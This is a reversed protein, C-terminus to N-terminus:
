RSVEAGFPTIPPAQFVVEAHESTLAAHPVVGGLDLGNTKEFLWDDLDFVKRKIKELLM